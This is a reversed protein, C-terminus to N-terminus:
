LRKTMKRHLIGAEEFTHGFAEFGLEEYFPISSVQAHLTVEAFGRAASERLLARMLATGVQRRRWEALVSVRGISGDPLLRAAGIARGSGDTALAHCAGPDQEDVEMEEPVKQEEVFVRFRVSSLLTRHTDWDVLEVAHEFGM